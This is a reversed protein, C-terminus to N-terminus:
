IIGCRRGIYSQYSGDVLSMCSTVVRKGDQFIASQVIVIFVNGVVHCDFGAVVVTTGWETKEDSLYKFRWPM